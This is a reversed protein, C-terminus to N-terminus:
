VTKLLDLVKNEDLRAKDIKGTNRYIIARDKYAATNSGDLEIAKNLFSLAIQDEGELLSAHGANFYYLSKEPSVQIAQQYDKKAKKYDKKDMYLNGRANYATGMNPNLEIAKNYDQEAADFNHLARLSFGRNIYADIYTPNLVIAKSLDEIAKKYQELENYIYGRDNLAMVNNPDIDLAKALDRLAKMNEGMEIYSNGRNIYPIPSSPRLQSAETFEKVAREYDGESDAELGKHIHTWYPLGTNPQEEGEVEIKEIQQILTKVAPNNEKDTWQTTYNSVRRDAQEKLIKEIHEPKIKEGLKEKGIQLMLADFGQTQVFYGEKGLILNQIKKNPIVDGIYCWYVGHRMKTAKDCLYSMLSGDGGGYGIIIPTYVDFVHNLAEQWQANLSNTTEPSNFPEYFLSRHVKAIIPRQIESSIFSALSEHGVVLPRKQAFLFLADELLSDFNTTIVLNNLNNETMLLSLIDYGISPEKNEMIRELYRYGNTPNPYFRLKYIDFYYESTLNDKEWAKEIKQFDNELMHDESLRHALERTGEKTRHPLNKEDKEGMLYDMWNKELETGTPIGSSVSAGSGLIFCFRLGNNNSEIIQRVLEISTLIRHKPFGSSGSM